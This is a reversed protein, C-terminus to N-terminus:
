SLNVYIDITSVFSNAVNSYFEHQIIQNNRVAKWDINYTVTKVADDFDGGLLTAVQSEIDARLDDFTTAKTADEVTSKVTTIALNEYTPQSSSLNAGATDTYGTPKYVDPLSIKTLQAALAM